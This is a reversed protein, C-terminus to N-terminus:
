TRRGKPYRVESWILLSMCPPNPCQYTRCWMGWIIWFIKCGSRPWLWETIIWFARDGYWHSKTARQLHNVAELSCGSCVWWWATTQLLSQFASQSSWHATKLIDITTIGGDEAASASASRVSHAKFISTDIGARSLVSKLWRAITSSTVPRYSRIFISLFLRSDDDHIRHVKTRAEYEEM